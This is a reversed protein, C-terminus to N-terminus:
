GGDAVVSSIVFFMLRLRMLDMVTPRNHVHEERVRIHSDQITHSNPFNKFLLDWLGYDVLVRRIICVKEGFPSTHTHTDDHSDLFYM